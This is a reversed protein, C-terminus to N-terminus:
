RLLARQAEIFDKLQMTPNFARWRSILSSPDGKRVLDLDAEFAARSPFLPQKRYDMGPRPTIPASAKPDAKSPTAPAAPEKPATVAGTTPLRRDEPAWQNIALDRTERVHKHFAPSTTDGPHETRWQEMADRFFTLAQVNETANRPMGGYEPDGVLNEIDKIAASVLPKTLIESTENRRADDILAKFTVPNKVQRNVGWNFVDQVTARGSAVDSMFAAIVSPDETKDYDNFNKSLEVAKEALKPDITALRSIEETTISPMENAEIQKLLGDIVGSQEKEVRLKHAKEAAKTQIEDLKIRNALITQAAQEVESRYKGFGAGPTGDPRPQLALDLITPDGHRIAAETITQVSIKNITDGDIGQGRLKTEREHIRDMMEPLHANDAGLGSPTAGYKKLTANYTAQHRGHNGKLAQWTPAMIKQIRPSFGERELDEWLNKGTRAKYDQEALKIAARDQNEPTFPTNEGMLKKWTTWVFQYRGAASSVQGGHTAEFVKPHQGNLDFLAGGRPTYRINYKGSSEGGATGNLFAVKTAAHKDNPDMKEAIVPDDTQYPVAKGKIAYQDFDEASENYASDINKKYLNRRSNERHADIFQGSVRQLEERAAAM